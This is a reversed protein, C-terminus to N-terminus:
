LDRLNEEELPIEGLIERQLAGIKNEECAIEGYLAVVWLRTGRWKDPRMTAHLAGPGCLELPGHVHQRLGPSAVFSKGGNAPCGEADSKWLALYTADRWAADLRQKQADPWAAVANAYLAEWYGAGYVAGDGHGSGTGYGEGVGYGSDARIGVGYGAGVGARYGYGASSINRTGEGTGEGAGYVEGVGYGVGVGDGGGAGDGAGDGYGDGADYGVGIGVGAPYGYGAGISYGDGDGYGAGYGTDYEAGDGFDGAPPVKGWLTIKEVACGGM